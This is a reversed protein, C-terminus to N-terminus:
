GRCWSTRPARPQCRRPLFRGRVRAALVVPRASMAQCGWGAPRRPPTGLDDSLLGLAAHELWHPGSGEAHYTFM